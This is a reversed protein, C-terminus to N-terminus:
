RRQYDNTVIVILGPSADKLGEFRQLVRLGFDAGLAEAAAQEGTGPRYYVTSTPIIGDPYNSVSTVKWGAGRFDTAAQDALGSILSNNYVRLPARVSTAGKGGGIADPARSPPPASPVPLASVEPPASSSPPAGTTPIAGTSPAPAATASPSPTAGPIGEDGGFVLTALGIIGAIVAVGLLVFGATRLPSSGGSPSPATM